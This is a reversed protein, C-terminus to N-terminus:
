AAEKSTEVPLDVFVEPRIARLYMLRPKPIGDRRWQSVAQQSVECIRATEATGGILDIIRNSDM